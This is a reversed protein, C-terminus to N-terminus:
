GVAIDLIPLCYQVSQLVFGCFVLVIGFVGLRREPLHDAYYEIFPNVMSGLATVVGTVLGVRLAFLWAHDIHRVVTSCIMAAAIYGLTRLIVGSIQARSLRPKRAASYDIGPRMGRSYAVAQGATLLGAFAAAFPLGATRYVGAGFAAARIASFFVEWRLPFHDRRRAVRQLEVAVTIGTALGCAVGFFVGLGLGYGVGFVISYTVARTLLRLPGYQGGLLDYALYMGGFVDLCIGALSIEAVLRHDIM